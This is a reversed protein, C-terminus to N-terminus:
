LFIKFHNNSETIFNHLCSNKEFYGADKLFATPNDKIAKINGTVTPITDM